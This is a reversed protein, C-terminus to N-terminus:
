SRRLKLIARAELALAAGLSAHDSEAIHIGDSGVRAVKNADFHFRGTRAAVQELYHAHGICRRSADSWIEPEADATISAPTVILIEPCTDILSYYGRIIQILTLTGRASNYSSIGFQAKFDNTGLMMVILDLPAHSEVIALLTRSGNKHVGEIADDFVTTRGGLGEEVVRVEPGLERGMINPWRRDFAIRDPAQAINDYPPCGWTNSDGFCVITHM